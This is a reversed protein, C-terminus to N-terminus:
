INSEYGRKIATNKRSKDDNQPKTQSLISKTIAKSFM